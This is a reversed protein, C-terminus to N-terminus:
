HLLMCLKFTRLKLDNDNLGHFLVKEAAMDSRLKRRHRVFPFEFNAVDSITHGHHSTRTIKRKVDFVQTNIYKM